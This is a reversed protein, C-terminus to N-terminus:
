QAGASDSAGGPASTDLGYAAAFAAQNDHREYRAGLHDLVWVSDDHPTQKVDTWSGFNKIHITGFKAGIRNTVQMAEYIAQAQTKTLILTSSTM